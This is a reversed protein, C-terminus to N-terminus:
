KKRLCNVRRVSIRRACTRLSSTREELQAASLGCLSHTLPVTNARQEPAVNTACAYLSGGTRLVGGGGELFFKERVRLAFGVSPVSQM